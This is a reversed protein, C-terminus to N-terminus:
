TVEKRPPMPPVDTDSGELALTLQRVRSEMDEMRSNVLVHVQQVQKRTRWAVVTGILGLITALLVLASTVIGLILVTLTM